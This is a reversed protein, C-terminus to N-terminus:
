WVFSTTEGALKEGEYIRLRWAIVRGGSKPATANASLAEPAYSRGSVSFRTRQWGAAQTFPIEISRLKNGDFEQLYEWVILGEKLPRRPKWFFTFYHGLKDKTQESTVAGYNFYLHELQHAVSRSNQQHAPDNIYEYVKGFKVNQAAVAATTNISLQHSQSTNQAQLHVSLLSNIVVLTSARIILKKHVTTM